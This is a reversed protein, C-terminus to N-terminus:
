FTGSSYRVSATKELHEKLIHVYFYSYELITTLFNFNNDKKDITICVKYTSGISKLVMVDKVFGSKSQWGSLCKVVQFAEIEM